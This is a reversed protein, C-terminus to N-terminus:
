QKFDRPEISNTLELFLFHRSKFNTPTFFIPSDHWSSSGSDCTWEGAPDEDSEALGDPNHGGGERWPFVETSLLSHQRVDTQLVLSAQVGQAMAPRGKQTGEQGSPNASGDPHPAPGQVYAEAKLRQQHQQRRRRKRKIVAQSALAVALAAEAPDWTDDTIYYRTQDVYSDLDM